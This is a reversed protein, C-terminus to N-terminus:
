QIIQNDELNRVQWFIMACGFFILIDAVNFVPFWNGVYIFDRVFGFIVRDALNWIGWAILLIYSLKNIQWKRFMYTVIWFIVLTIFIILISQGTLLNYSIGHNAIPYFIQSLYWLNYFAYKSAFDVILLPIIYLIIM